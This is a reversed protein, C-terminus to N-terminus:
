RAAASAQDLDESRDRPVRYLKLIAASRERGRSRDVIVQEGGTLEVTLYPDQGDEVLRVAHALNKPAVGDIKAVMGMALQHFGENASDALVRELIVLEQGEFVADKELALLGERPAYRQWDDGGWMKLLNSTVPAFVLGAFAFYRPRRDYVERAVLLTHGMKVDLAVSGAKVEGDRLYEVAMREGLQHGQAVLDYATRERPRLEVTGDNTVARGDLSLLVDEAKLLPAAAAGPPVRLVLVGTKGAPMRYRARAAAGEMSQTTVGLEPFGDYRGDELDTLVHRIVPTPVFHAMSEADRRKQTVVGVVRKGVLAPGGSNGPNVAADLQGLLLSFSSHVYETHEIRSVVGRTVSLTDGGMPFGVVTVEAQLPPLDGLELPAVGEFWAADDVALVALDAEPAAWLVRAIQRQSAGYRRVEVLTANSVVHAATLIRHGGIVFGTGTSSGVSGAEWPSWYDPEIMTAYIKVVADRADPPPAPAQKASGLLLGVLLGIV